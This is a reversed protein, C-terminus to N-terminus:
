ANVDEFTRPPELDAVRTRNAHQERRCSRCMRRGKEFAALPLTRSCATCVKAADVPINGNGLDKTRVELSNGPVDGPINGNRAQVRETVLRELEAEVAQDVLAALEDHRAAVLERIREDIAGAAV